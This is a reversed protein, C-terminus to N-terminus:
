NEIIGGAREEDTALEVQRKKQTIRKWGSTKTALRCQAAADGADKTVQNATKKGLELLGSWDADAVQGVM